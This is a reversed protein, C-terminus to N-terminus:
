EALSEWRMLRKKLDDALLRNGSVADLYVRAARLREHKLMEGYCCLAQEYGVQILDPRGVVRGFWGLWEWCRGAALPREHSSEMESLLTRVERYIEKARHQSEKKLFLCSALGLRAALRTELDGDKASLIKEWLNLAEEISGFEQLLVAASRLDGGEELARIARDTLGAAQWCSSAELWHEATEFMVAARKWVVPILEPTVMM